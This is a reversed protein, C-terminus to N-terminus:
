CYHFRTITKSTIQLFYTTSAPPLGTAISWCSQVDKMDSVEPVVSEDNGESFDEDDQEGVETDLIGRLSDIDSNNTKDVEDVEDESIDKTNDTNTIGRSSTSNIQNQLTTGQSNNNQLYKKYKKMEFEEKESDSTLILGSWNNPDM